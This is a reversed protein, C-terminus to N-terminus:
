TRPDPHTARKALLADCTAEDLPIITGRRALIHALGLLFREGEVDEGVYLVAVYWHPDSFFRFASMEPNAEALLAHVYTYARESDSARDFRAALSLGM